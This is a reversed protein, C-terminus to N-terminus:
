HYAIVVNQIYSGTISTHSSNFKFVQTLLTQKPTTAKVKAKATVVRPEKKTEKGLKPKTTKPKKGSTTRLEETDKQCHGIRYHIYM